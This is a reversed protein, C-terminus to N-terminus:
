QKNKEKASAYSGVLWAIVVATFFQGVIAELQCLSSAELTQPTIDGYGLTTLTVISFYIFLNFKNGETNELLAGSYSGPVVEYLLAYLAGWFLGIVLYLCLTAIITNLTVTKFKSIQAAFTFVLLGLYVSLLIYSYIRGSGILNYIACWYLVLVPLLFIMATTRYGQEQNIAYVSLLLSISLCLHALIALSPFNALFPSGFIYLLLFFLLNRFGYKETFTHQKAGM